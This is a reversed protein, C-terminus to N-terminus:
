TTPPIGPAIIDFGGSGILPDLCDICYQRIQDEIAAMRRPTFVRSMLVRLRTHAPPDEFMM